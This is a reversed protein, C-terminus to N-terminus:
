PGAGEPPALGWPRLSRGRLLLALEGGKRSLRTALKTLVEAPNSITGVFRAAGRLGDEALAVSITKKHVDLGVFTITKGMVRRGHMFGPASGDPAVRSVQMGHSPAGLELRVHPGPTM